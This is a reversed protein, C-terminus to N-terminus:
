SILNNINNIQRLKCRCTTNHEGWSRIETVLYLLHDIIVLPVRRVEDFLDRPLDINVDITKNQVDYLEEVYNQWAREYLYQTAVDPTGTYAERVPAFLLSQGSAAVTAFVPIVALPMDSAIDGHWCFTNRLVEDISDDSVYVSSRWGDLLPEAATRNARRYYFNGSINAAKDDKVNAIAPLSEVQTTTDSAMIARVPAATLSAVASAKSGYNTILKKEGKDVANQTVIRKSGFPIGHREEYGETFTTDLGELNFLVSRHEWSLPTMTVAQAVQPTIDAPNAAMFDAFADKSRKVTVTEAVDDVEWVLHHLKAYQLLVSFPAIDGFLAELSVARGSRMNEARRVTVNSIGVSLTPATSVNYWYYPSVVNSGALAFPTVDETAETTYFSATVELRIDTATTPILTLEDHFAALTMDGQVGVAIPSYSCERIEYARRMAKGVAQSVYNGFVTNRDLFWDKGSNETTNFIIYHKENYFGVGAGTAKVRIHLPSVNNMGVYWDSIEHQPLMSIVSELDYGFTVREGAEVHVADTTATAVVDGIGSVIIPHQSVEVSEIPMVTATLGGSLASEAITKEDIKQQPLMYVMGKLEDNTANFWRQDLIMNYGTITRCERAILQWLASVYIYPQQYYSRYEGLQQEYITGEVKYSDAASGDLWTRQSLVPVIGAQAAREGDIVTKNLWKDGSFDPYAGQLTPAFGILSVIHAATEYAAALGYLAALDDHQYIETLDFLPNDVMWSTRVLAANLANKANMDYGNRWAYRVVDFLKVYSDDEAKKAASWGANLLRSFIASQSGTLSLYYADKDVKTLVADGTSVVMGSSMALYQMKEAPNFGSATVVSDLRYINSFLKDNDACRPLKVSVSRESVYNTPNDLNDFTFTFRVDEKDDLVAERWVQKTMGYPIKLYLRSM